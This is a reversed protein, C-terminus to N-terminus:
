MYVDTIFCVCSQGRFIDTFPQLGMVRITTGRTRRETNECSEGEERQAM